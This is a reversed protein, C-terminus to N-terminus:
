FAGLFEELARDGPRAFAGSRSAGTGNLRRLKVAMEAWKATLTIADLVPAGNIELGGSLAFLLSPFGGGPLLVEAGEGVLLDAERHFQTAISDFADSDTFAANMQAPDTEIAKVGVIRSEIGYRAVQEEIIPIFYPHITLVALRWGLTCAFLLSAEGLGVVPIGLTGRMDFLGPDYFHGEIFADFGDREATIANRVTRAACRLESLRHLETMPPDIGIVEYSVGPDAVARLHSSLREIYAGHQAPDVFSQYRIRITEDGM